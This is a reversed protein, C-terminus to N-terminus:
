LSDSDTDSDESDADHDSDEFADFSLAMRQRVTNMLEPDTALDRPDIFSGDSNEVWALPDVTITVNLDEGDFAELPPDFEMEMELDVPVLVDFAEGDAEGTLRVGQIDLELEEYLGAPVVHSLPTIVSGDLPLDIIAGEAVFEENGAHDSDSDTDSDGDSDVDGDGDERELVLEEVHLEVADLSLAAAASELTLGPEARMTALGSRPEVAFSLTMPADGNPGVGNDDDCAAVGAVMLPLVLVRIWKSM